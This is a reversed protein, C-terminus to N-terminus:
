YREPSPSNEEGEGIAELSSYLDDLFGEYDLTGNMYMDLSEKFIMKLQAITENNPQVTGGKKMKVDGVEKPMGQKMAGLQM